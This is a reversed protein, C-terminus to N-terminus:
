REFVLPTQNHCRGDLGVDIGGGLVRQGAQGDAILRNQLLNQREPFALLGAAAEVGASKREDLDSGEDGEVRRGGRVQPLDGVREGRAGRRLVQMPTSRAIQGCTPPGRTIAAAGSSM